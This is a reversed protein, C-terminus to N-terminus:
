QSREEECTAAGIAPGGENVVLVSPQHNASLFHQVHGLQRAELQALRLNLPHHSLKRPNKVVNLHDPLKIEFPDLRSRM